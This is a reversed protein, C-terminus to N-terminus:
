GILNTQEKQIKQGQQQKACSREVNSDLSSGTHSDSDRCQKSTNGNKM